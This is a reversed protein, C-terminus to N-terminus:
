KKGAGLNMIKILGDILSLQGIKKHGTENDTWYLFKRVSDYALAFPSKMRVRTSLNLAIAPGGHVSMRFIDGQREDTFYFNPQDQGAFLFFM